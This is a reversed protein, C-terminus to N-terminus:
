VNNKCKLNEKMELREGFVQHLPVWKDLRVMKDKRNVETYTQPSQQECRYRTDPLQTIGAGGLIM